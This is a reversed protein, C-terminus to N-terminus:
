VRKRSTNGKTPSLGRVQPDRVKKPGSVNSVELMQSLLTSLRENPISTDSSLVRLYYQSMEADSLDCYTAIFTMLKTFMAQQIFAEAKQTLRGMDPDSELALNLIEVSDQMGNFFSLALPALEYLFFNRVDTVRTDLEDSIEQLYTKSIDVIHKNSPVIKTGNAYRKLVEVSVHPPHSIKPSTTEKLVRRVEEEEERSLKSEEPPLNPLDDTLIVKKKSVSTRRKKYEKPPPPPVVASSKSIKKTM